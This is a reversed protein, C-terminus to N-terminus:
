AAPSGYGGTGFEVSATISDMDTIAVAARSRRGGDEEGNIPIDPVKLAVTQAKEEHKEKERLVQKMRNYQHQLQAKEHVPKRPQLDLSIVAEGNHKIIGSSHGVSSDLSAERPQYPSQLALTNHAKM